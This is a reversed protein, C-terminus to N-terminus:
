QIVSPNLFAEEEEDPYQNDSKVTIDILYDGDLIMKKFIHYNGKGPSIIYYSEVEGIEKLFIDAGADSLKKEYLTSYDKMTVLKGLDAIALIYENSDIRFIKSVKVNEVGNDKPEGPFIIQYEENGINYSFVYPSLRFYNVIGAVILFVSAILAIAFGSKRILGIEKGISKYIFLVLIFIFLGLFSIYLYNM